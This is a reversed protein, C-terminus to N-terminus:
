LNFSFPVLFFLQDRNFGSRGSTIRQARKISIEDRHFLPLLSKMPCTPCAPNVPNIPNKRNAASLAAFSFSYGSRPTIPMKSTSSHAHQEIKM